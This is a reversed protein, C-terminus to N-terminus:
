RSFREQFGTRINIILNVFMRNIARNIEVVKDVLIYMAKEPKNVDIGTYAFFIIIILLLVIMLLAFKAPNKM